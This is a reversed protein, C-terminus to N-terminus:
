AIDDSMLQSLQDYVARATKSKEGGMMERYVDSMKRRDTLILDQILVTQFQPSLLELVNVLGIALEKMKKKGRMWWARGQSMLAYELAQRNAKDKGAVEDLPPHEGRVALDIDVLKYTEIFAILKNCVASGLNSELVTRLMKDRPDLPRVRGEDEDGWFVKVENSAAEWSRPTCFAKEQNQPMVSLDAPESDLYGIFESRIRGEGIAWPRWVTKYEAVVYHHAMRNALPGHLPFVGGTENACFVLLWGPGLQSDLLRRELVLDLAIKQVADPAGTFDDIVYIGQGEHPVPILPHREFKGLLDNWKPVGCLQNYDTTPLGVRVFGIGLANACRKAVSSKGVGPPGWLMQAPLRSKDELKALRLLKAEVEKLTVEAGFIKAEAQARGNSRAM